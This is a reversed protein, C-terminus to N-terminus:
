GAKSRIFGNYLTGVGVGIGSVVMATLTLVVTVIMGLEPDTSYQAQIPHRWLYEMEPNMNAREITDITCMTFTAGCGAFWALWRNTDLITFGVATTLCTALAGIRNVADYEIAIALARIGLAFSVLFVAFLIHKLNFKM